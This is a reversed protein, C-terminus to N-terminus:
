GLDTWRGKQSGSAPPLVFLFPNKHSRTRSEVVNKHKDKCIFFNQHNRLFLFPFPEVKQLLQQKNSEGPLLQWAFLFKKPCDLLQLGSTAPNAETLSLIGDKLIQRFFTVFCFFQWGTEVQERGHGPDLTIQINSYRGLRLNFIFKEKRGYEKMQYMSKEQNSSMGKVIPSGAARHKICWSFGQRCEQIILLHTVARPM